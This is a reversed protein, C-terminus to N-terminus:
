DESNITIGGRVTLTWSHFRNDESVTRDASELLFQPAAWLVALVDGLAADLADDARKPDQHGTLVQVTYTVALHGVPAEPLRTLGTTWAAVTPKTVADLSTPFGIVRYAPGLGAILAAHLDARLQTTM